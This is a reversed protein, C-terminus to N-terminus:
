IPIRDHHIMHRRYANALSTESLRVRLAKMFLGESQLYGQPEKFLLDARYRTMATGFELLGGMNPTNYHLAKSSTSPVQYTNIVVPDHRNCRQQLRITLADIAPQFYTHEADVLM